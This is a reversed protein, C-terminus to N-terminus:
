GRPIGFNSGPNAQPRAFTQRLRVVRLERNPADEVTIDCRQPYGDQSRVARQRRLLYLGIPQDLSEERLARAYEQEFLPSFISYKGYISSLSINFSKRSIM